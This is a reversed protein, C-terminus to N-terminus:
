TAVARQSFYEVILPHPHQMLEEMPAVAIVRGEGLFAVRDCTRKLSDIDHSVIVITLNLADRLFIILQDFQKASLPDLGSTPEDLFLLEPDMAIARAAAARRQMGGSLEAPFKYAADTPLGVLNLKLLALERMFDPQLRTLERMPFCINELVTMASFLASHQFLMGFRQRLAKIEADNLNSLTQGFIRIVGATPQSLMLLSRLLTTKGCGSSGIIAFIEGANITLNVDSHVWQDAFKNQLGLIEIVATSKYKM